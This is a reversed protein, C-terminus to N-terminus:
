PNSGNEDSPHVRGKRKQQLYRIGNECISMHEGIANLLPLVGALLLRLKREGSEQRYEPWHRLAHNYEHQMFLFLTKVFVRDETLQKWKTEFQDCWAALEHESSHRGLYNAAKVVMTELEKFRGAWHSFQKAYREIRGDIKVRRKESIPKAREQVLSKFWGAPLPSASLRGPVEGLPMMSTHEIVAGVQSANFFRVQPFRGMISETSRKLVLMSKDTRNQGGAVNRVLLDTKAVNAKQSKESVHSVGEAYMRDGPYSFDQGILVIDRCGLWVAAQIATGTVTASSEMVVDEDDDLQMLENALTDNDFYAHLLWPSQDNLIASHKLMPVYLFPIHSVDFPSFVRYNAKGADISVILDPEIGNRLLSQIASGAAILLIRDRISRLRDMEMGLSPGSGAIVAPVGLCVNRLGHFSRTHLNRGLNVFLNELWEKRFRKYLHDNAAYNLTTNRAHEAFAQLLGSHWKRYVPPAAFSFSGKAHSLIEHLMREHVGAEEGIAFLAVQPHDLVPRLDVLEIATLFLDLDPEYIFLKKDPFTQLVAAAHYGLGFGFLLLNDSQQANELSEAWRLAELDPDFRSYLWTDRDDECIAAIPQGNKATGSRIRDRSATRNRVLEYIKPYTKRLFLLNDAAFKKM